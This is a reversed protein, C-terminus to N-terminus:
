FKVVICAFSDAPVRLGQQVERSGRSQAVGHTQCFFTRMCSCQGLSARGLVEAVGSVVM